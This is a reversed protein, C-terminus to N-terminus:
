EEEESEEATEYRKVIARISKRDHTGAYKTSVLVAHNIVYIASDEPVEEPQLVVGKEKLCRGIYKKGWVDAERLWNIIVMCTRLREDKMYHRRSDYIEIVRKPTKKANILVFHGENYVVMCFSNLRRAIRKGTEDLDTILPIKLDHLVIRIVDLSVVNNLRLSLIREKKTQPLLLPNVAQTLVMDEDDEEEEAEPEMEEEGGEEGDEELGEEEAVAPDVGGMPETGANGFVYTPNAGDCRKMLLLLAHLRARNSKRENQM